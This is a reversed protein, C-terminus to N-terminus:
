GVGAGDCGAAGSGGCESLGHCAAGVAADNKGASVEVEAGPSALGDRCVTGQGSQHRSGDSSEKARSRWVGGRNACADTKQGDQEGKETPMRGRVLKVQRCGILITPRWCVFRTAWRVMVSEIAPPMLSIIFRIMRQQILMFRRRTFTYFCFKLGVAAAPLTFTITGSASANSFTGNSNSTTLAYDATKAAYPAQATLAGVLAAGSVNLTGTIYVGNTAVVNFTKQDITSAVTGDSWIWSYDHAATASQGAAHSAVGDASTMEGEAHSYNGVAATDEGEAHSYTGSAVSEGGEAHSATGSATTSSGEAHAYPGSASTGYGQQFAGSFTGSTGTIPGTAQLPGTMLPNIVVNSGETTFLANDVADNELWVALKIQGSANDNDAGLPSADGFVEWSGAFVIDSGSTSSANWALVCNSNNACSSKAHSQEAELDGGTGTSYLVVTKASGGANVNRGYLFSSYIRFDTDGTYYVVYTAANTSTNMILYVNTLYSTDGDSDALVTITEAGTPYIMVDEVHSADGITLRGDITTAKWGSGKLSVYDSLTVDEDYVGPMLRLVCPVVATCTSGFASLAGAITAYDGGSKAVTLTQSYPTNLTGTTLVGAVTANGTDTIIGTVLSDATLRGTTFGGSARVPGVETPMVQQMAQRQEYWLYGQGVALLLWALGIMIGFKAKM